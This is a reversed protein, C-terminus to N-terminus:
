KELEPCDEIILIKVIPFLGSLFVPLFLDLIIEMESSWFDVKITKVVETVFVNKM